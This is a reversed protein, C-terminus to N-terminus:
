VASPSHTLGMLTTTICAGGGTHGERAEGQNHKKLFHTRTGPFATNLVIETRISCSRCTCTNNKGISSIEVVNSLKAVLSSASSRAM